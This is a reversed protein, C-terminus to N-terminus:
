KLDLFFSVSPLLLSTLSSSLSLFYPLIVLFSFPPPFSLSSPPSLFISTTGGYVSPHSLCKEWLCCHAYGIHWILGSQPPYSPQPKQVGNEALGNYHVLKGCWQEVQGQTPPFSPGDRRPEPRRREQCAQAVGARVLSSALRLRQFSAWSSGLLIKWVEILRPAGM